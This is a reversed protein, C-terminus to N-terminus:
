SWCDVHSVNTVFMLHVWLENGQSGCDFGHPSGSEHSIDPKLCKWARDLEAEKSTPTILLQPEWQCLHYLLPKQLRLTIGGMRSDSVKMLLDWILDNLLGGALSVNEVPQVVYCCLLSIIAGFYQILTMLIMLSARRISPAAGKKTPIWNKCNSFACFRWNEVM